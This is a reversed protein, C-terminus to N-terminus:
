RWGTAAFLPMTEYQSVPGRGPVGVRMLTRARTQVLWAAQRSWFAHYPLENWGTVDLPPRSIAGLQEGPSVFSLGGALWVRHGSQLTVAIRDLVSRIAAPELMRLKVLDYRHFRHDEIDPLTAWPAAGHYYRAFTVGFWWPFVVILDDRTAEATLQAAVIDVNTSRVRASQWTQAGVLLALGAVAAVRIARMAVRGCVVEHVAVEIAVAALAMVTVYYWPETPYSLIKLFAIHGALAVVMTSGIFTALDAAHDSTRRASSLLAHCCVVIAFLYLAVWIWVMVQGSTGIAQAFKLGIWPLDIPTKVLVNWEQLRRMAPVYPLLSAAAVFGIGGLAWVPGWTRRRWGVAAGGVCIAFLAVANYYLCQVALVATFAAIAVRAPTPAKVVKWISSLM